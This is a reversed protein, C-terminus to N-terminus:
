RIFDGATEPISIDGTRKDRIVEECNRILEKLRKNRKLLKKKETKIKDLEELIDKEREAWKNKERIATVTKETEVM